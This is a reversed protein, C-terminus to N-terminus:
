SAGWQWRIGARGAYGILDNGGRVEGQIFGSVGRGNDVNLTFLGLGRLKGEQALGLPVTSFLGGSIFGGSISVDDYLLGAVSPTIRYQNSYYDTGFVAGGQVRFLSGNALGFASAGSAYNTATYQFGVTPQVWFAGWMPFRYNLNGATTYNNLNTSGSGFFTSTTTPPNPANASFGLVDTFNLDLGLIDVKFTLDWSFGGRFYTLYGGVTPGNLHAHLTGVGNPVNGTNSSTSTSVLTTNTSMYGFLLGAIFGDGPAALGRWTADFGGLVGGTTAKSTSSISLNNSIGGGASCCDATTQATGTRKEYDGYAKVWSAFTVATQPVVPAKYIPAKYVPAATRAPASSRRSPAPTSSPAPAPEATETVREVEVQRRASVADLTVQTTQITAAQSVDSLAQAALAANSFAGTGVGGNVNTCSGAKLQIGSQVGGQM